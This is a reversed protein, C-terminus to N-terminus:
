IAPREVGASLIEEDPDELALYDEFTGESSNLFAIEACAEILCERVVPSAARQGVMRLITLVDEVEIEKTDPHIFPLIVDFSLKEAM